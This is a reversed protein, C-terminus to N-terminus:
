KTKRALYNHFGQPSKRTKKSSTGVIPLAAISIGSLYQTVCSSFHRVLSHSAM